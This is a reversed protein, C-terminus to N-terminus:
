EATGLLMARTPLLWEAQAASIRYVLANDARRVLFDPADPATLFLLSLAPAAGPGDTDFMELVAVPSGFDVAFAVSDSPFGTAVLEASEQLLAHVFVSDVAQGDLNWGPAAESGGTRALLVPEPQDNRRVAIRTVTSTDVSAVVRDRWEEASRGLPRMSAASVTFVDDSPPFRVFRGDTGGGGMLFMISPDGVPGIEIRRASDDSVGLRAHNTASRAVLRGVRASDLGEALERVLSSDAPYGNVTWAGDAEELRVSDAADPTLVRVVSFGDRVSASISDSGAAPGKGSLLQVAVYAVLLLSLAAFIAKIQRSKM